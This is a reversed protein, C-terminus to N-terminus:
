SKSMDLSTFANRPKVNFSLLAKFLSYQKYVRKQEMMRWQSHIFATQYESTTIHM